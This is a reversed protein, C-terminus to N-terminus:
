KLRLYLISEKTVGVDILKENEKYERIFRLIFSRSDIQLQEKLNGSVQSKLKEAVQGATATIPVNDLTYTRGDVCRLFLRQRRVQPNPDISSM